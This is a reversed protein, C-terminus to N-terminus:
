VLRFVGLAGRLDRGTVGVVGREMVGDVFGWAINCGIAAVLMTRVEDRGASAMSLKGTFTLVMFLGFLIELIREIPDLVRTRGAFGLGDIM